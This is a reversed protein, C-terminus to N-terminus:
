MRQEPIALSLQLLPPNKCQTETELQIQSERVEKLARPKDPSIWSLCWPLEM